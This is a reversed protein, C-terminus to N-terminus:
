KAFMEMHAWYGLVATLLWIAAAPLLCVAALSRLFHRTPALVVALVLPGGLGTLLFGIGTVLPKQSLGVDVIRVGIVMAVIGAVLGYIAVPMLTWEKAVAAAAGLFLIGLLASMEGFAPNAWTLNTEGMHRIPWTLAMYLGAAFALLGVMGLAPAWAKESPRGFGKLLFTALVLLGAAMNVLMLTLFDIFMNEERRIGAGRLWASQV